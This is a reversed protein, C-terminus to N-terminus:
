SSGYLGHARVYEAVGAPLAAGPVEGRAFAARLESASIPVPPLRLLGRELRATLAPALRARLEELAALEGEDRWVVIPEARSLLEDVERWDALGSLNDGGLLLFIRAAGGAGERQQLARVTDITFSPGDRELEIEWVEFDPEDRLALRVMEARAAGPALRVDPKHPPRAAPVFLVRELGFAERAARAVHLHGTHIPDFSGGFLGIRREGVLPDTAAPQPHTSPQAPDPGAGAGSHAASVGGM